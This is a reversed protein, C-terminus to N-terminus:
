CKVAKTKSKIAESQALDSAIAFARDAIPLAMFESPPMNHNQWALHAYFAM